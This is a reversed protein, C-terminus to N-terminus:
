SQVKAKREDMCPECWGLPDHSHWRALSQTEHAIVHGHEECVTSWPATGECDDMGAQPAYYIGVIYGTQRSRRRVVCGAYGDFDYTRALM